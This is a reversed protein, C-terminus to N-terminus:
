LFPVTDHIVDQLSEQEVLVDEHIILTHLTSNTEVNNERQRILEVNAHGGAHIESRRVHDAKGGVLEALIDRFREVPAERLRNLGQRSVFLKEILQEAIGQRIPQVVECFSPVGDKLLRELADREMLIGRGLIEHDQFFHLGVLFQVPEDIGHQGAGTRQAIVLQRNNVRVQFLIFLGDLHARGLLGGDVQQQMEPIRVIGPEDFQRVNDLENFGHIEILIVFRVDPLQVQGVLLTFQDGLNDVSAQVFGIVEILVQTVAELLTLDPLSQKVMDMVLRLIFGSPHEHVSDPVILLVQGRVGGELLSQTDIARHISGTLKIPQLTGPSDGAVQVIDQGAALRLVLDLLNQLGHSRDVRDHGQLHKQLILCISGPITHELEDPEVSQGLVGLGIFFESVPLRDQRLLGATHNGLEHFGAQLFDEPPSLYPPDEDIFLHLLDSKGQLFGSGRGAEAYQRASGTQRHRLSGLDADKGVPLLHVINVQASECHIRVSAEELQGPPRHPSIRAVLSGDEGAVLSGSVVATGLIEIHIQFLEM